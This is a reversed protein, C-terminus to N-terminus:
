GGGLSPFCDSSLAGGSEISPSGTSFRSISKQPKEDGCAPCKIDIDSTAISRLLEFCHGCKGCKYEYLPM